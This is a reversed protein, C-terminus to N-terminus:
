CVLCVFSSSYIYMRVIDADNKYLFQRDSPSLPRVQLLRRVRRQVISLLSPPVLVADNAM